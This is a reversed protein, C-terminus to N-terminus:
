PTATSQTNASTQRLYFAFIAGKFWLALVPGTIALALWEATNWSAPVFRALLAFTLGPLVLYWICGPWTSTIMRRGMRIAEIPNGTADVLAPIVFTLAADLFVVYGFSVGPMWASAHPPTQGAAHSSVFVGTAVIFDVVLVAICVLVGLKVFRWLYRRTLRILDTLSLYRQFWVRQTGSFGLLVFQWVVFAATFASHGSRSPRSAVILVDGVGYAALTVVLLEPTAFIRRASNRLDARFGIQAEVSPRQGFEVWVHLWCRCRLDVEPEPDQPQM